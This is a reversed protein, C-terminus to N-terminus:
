EPPPGPSELETSSTVDASPTTDARGQGGRRKSVLARESVTVGDPLEVDLIRYRVKKDDVLQKLARETPTLTTGKKKIEVFDVSDSKVGLLDLPGQKSPSSLFMISDYDNLTSFSGLVQAIDGKVQAGGLTYARTQRQKFAAELEKIRRERLYAYVLLVVLLVVLAIALVLDVPSLM